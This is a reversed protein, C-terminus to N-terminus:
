DMFARHWLEICLLGWLTRDFAQNSEIVRAVAHPDLVGRSLARDSQLIEVVAQRFHPHTHMWDRFPVPRGVKRQQTQLFPPLLRKLGHRVMYKPTGHALKIHTPTRMALDVLRQDLFPLRAEISNAMSARDEMHLLPPLMVKLDFALVRDLIDRGEEGDHYSSNFLTLLEREPEYGSTSQQLETTLLEQPVRTRTVLRLYRQAPTEQMNRALFKGIMADYDALFHLGQHLEGLGLSCNHEGKVADRLACELYFLLHRAYGGLLEDAGHGTLVVKARGKAQANTLYQPVIGPDGAPEDMHWILTTLQALFEKPDVNAVHHETHFHKSVQDAADVEETWQGTSFSSSFSQLSSGLTAAAGAVAATDVGGSLHLGYPVESPLEAHVAHIFQEYYQESLEDATEARLERPPHAYQQKQVSDQTILLSEGPLVKYIGQFLTRHSTVTQFQLYDLLSEHQLAKHIDPFKLLAKIESAFLFHQPTQAYYLPKIGTHDRAIFLTNKTQDHIAFAFMGVLSEVMRTGQDEYLHALVETDSHTKFQHGRAELQTRLEQHNYIEGNFVIAISRDENFLPQQGEPVDAIALRRNALAVNKKYYYGEGDPGRHSMTRNASEIQARYSEADHRFSYVGCVACM